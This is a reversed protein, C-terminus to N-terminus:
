RRHVARWRARLLDSVGLAVGAGGAFALAVIIQTLLAAESDRGVLSGAAKGAGLALIGVLFAGLSLTPWSPTSASTEAERREVV